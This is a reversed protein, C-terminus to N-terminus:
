QAHRDQPALLGVGFHRSPGLLVPGRVATDFEIATHVVGPVKRHGPGRTAHEARFEPIGPQRRFSPCSVAAPRPFGAIDCSKRVARNPRSLDGAGAVAVPTVTEWRRSPATWRRSQLAGPVADSGEIVQSVERGQVRDVGSLAAVLRGHLASPLGAPVAAAVGMVAGTAHAHGADPLAVWAVHTASSPSGDPDHGAVLRRVADCEGASADLAAARLANSMRVAAALPPRWGGPLRWVVLEPDWPGDIPGAPPAHGARHYSVPVYAIDPSAGVEFADSLATVSGATPCQLVITAAARGVVWEHRRGVGGPRGVTVVTPSSSMGLYGVGHAVQQLAKATGRDPTADWVYEVVPDSVSWRYSTRARAGRRPLAGMRLAASPEERNIAVMDTWCSQEADGAVVTPPGQRELWCLAEWGANASAAAAVLAGFMRRPHPPWPEADAPTGVEYCGSLFRVKVAVTM